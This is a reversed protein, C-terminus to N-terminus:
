ASSVFSRLPLAPGQNYPLIQAHLVDVQPDPDGVGTGADGPWPRM